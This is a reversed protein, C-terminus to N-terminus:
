KSKNRTQSLLVINMKMFVYLVYLKRIENKIKRM